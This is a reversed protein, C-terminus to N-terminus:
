YNRYWKGNNKIVLINVRDKFYNGDTEEYDIENDVIWKGSDGIHNFLDDNPTKIIQYDKAFNLNHTKDLGGRFSYTSVLNEGIVGSGDGGYEANFEELSDIEDSVLEATNKADDAEGGSDTGLTVVLDTDDELEVSLDASDSDAVEVVLNYSNGDSGPEDVEVIINGDDGSGIEVAASVAEEGLERQLLIYDAEERVNMFSDKGIRKETYGSDQTLREIIYPNDLINPM